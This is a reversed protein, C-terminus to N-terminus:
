SFHGHLAQMGENSQLFKNHIIKASQYVWIRKVIIMVLSGAVENVLTCM